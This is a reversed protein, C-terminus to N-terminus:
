ALAVSATGRAAALRGLSRESASRVHPRPAVRPSAARRVRNTGPTRTSTNRSSQGVGTLANDADVIGKAAVGNLNLPKATAVLRSILAAPSLQSLGPQAVLLSLVGSVFPAAMSTGSLTAYGGGLYTSYIGSGPAAIEVFNAGTNSYSALRGKSDIAAVGVVNPARYSAPYETSRDLNRASNGAAAVFVVGKSNAYRIADDISKSYGGGTWSANIIKAGNDVAYYIARAANALDGSGNADLFKLPMILANPNVGMVGIGNAGAAIIGSVHTGHGFDDQPFNNNAVFNWGQVDDPYGNGDDDIGNGPIERTNVWIRGALDPHGFDIGSDIVAVITAPANGLLNLAEPGDIDVNNGNSLGWQRGFAPDAVFASAGLAQNREAYAVDPRGQLWRLAVEARGSSITLESLPTGPVAEVKAGWRGLMSSTVPAPGGDRFRVLLEATGAVSLLRRDELPQVELRATRLRRFQPM